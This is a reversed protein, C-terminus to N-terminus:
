NIYIHPPLTLQAFFTVKKPFPNEFKHKIAKKIQAM